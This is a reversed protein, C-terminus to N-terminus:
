IEYYESDGVSLLTIGNFDDATLIIEGDKYMKEVIEAAYEEPDEVGDPIEINIEKNLHEEINVKVKKM